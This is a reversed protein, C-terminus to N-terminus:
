GVRDSHRSSAAILRADIHEAYAYVMDGLGMMYRGIQHAIVEADAGSRFTEPHSPPPTAPRGIAARNFTLKGDTGKGVAYGNVLVEYKRDGFRRIQIPKKTM